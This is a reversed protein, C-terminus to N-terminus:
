SSGAPRTSSAPDGARLWGDRFTDATARPEVRFYTGTITAGRSNSRALPLATGLLEDGREDVVRARVGPV